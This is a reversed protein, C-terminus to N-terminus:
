CGSFTQRWSNVEGLVQTMHWLTYHSFHSPRDRPGSSPGAPSSLSQPGTAEGRQVWGEDVFWSAQSLPNWIEELKLTDITM